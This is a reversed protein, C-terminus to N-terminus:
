FKGLSIQRLSEPSIRRVQHLLVDLRVFIKKRIRCPTRRHNTTVIRRHFDARFEFAQGFNGADQRLAQGVRKQPFSKAVVASADLRTALALRQQRCTSLGGDGVARLFNQRLRLRVAFHVAFCKRSTALRRRRNARVVFLSRGAHVAIGGQRSEGCDM